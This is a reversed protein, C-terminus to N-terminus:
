KSANKIRFQGGRESKLVRNTAQSNLLRKEPHDTKRACQSTKPICESM